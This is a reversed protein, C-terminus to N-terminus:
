AHLLGHLLADRITCVESSDTNSDQQKSEISQTTARLSLLLRARQTLAALLVEQSMGGREPSGASM